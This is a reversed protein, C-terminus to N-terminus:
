AASDMCPQLPPLTSTGRSRQRSRAAAKARGNSNQNKKQFGLLFFLLVKCFILFFNRKQPITSSFFDFLYFNFNFNFFSRPYRRHRPPGLLQVIREHRHRQAAFVLGAHGSLFSFLLYFFARRNFVFYLPFFNSVNIDTANPLSSWVLM